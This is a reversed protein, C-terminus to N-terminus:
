AAASRETLGHPQAPGSPQAASRSPRVVQVFYDRWFRENEAYDIIYEPAYIEGRAAREAIMRQTADRRMRAERALKERGPVGLYSTMDAHSEIAVFRFDNNDPM